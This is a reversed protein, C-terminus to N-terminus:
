PMITIPQSLVSSMMLDHVSQPFINNLNVIFGTYKEFESDVTIYVYSYECLLV